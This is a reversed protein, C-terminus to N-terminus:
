DPYCVYRNDIPLGLMLHVADDWLKRRLGPDRIAALAHHYHEVARRRVRERQAILASDSTESAVRFQDAYAQAVFVHVMPDTLGTRLAREGRESVLAPSCAYNWGSRLLEAFASRGAPSLSDTEYTRLLWSRRYRYADNYHDHEFRVGLAELRVRRASDAPTKGLWEAQFRIAIDAVLFAASRQAAALSTTDVLAVLARELVTDLAPTPRPADTRPDFNASDLRHAFILRLPVLGPLGSWTIASDARALEVVAEPSVKPYESQRVLESVGVDLGRGIMYSVAIATPPWSITKGTMEDEYREAPRLAVVVVRKGAIWSSGDTWRGAGPGSMLVGTRANGLATRLLQRMDETAGVAAAPDASPLELWLARLRCVRGPVDATDPLAEGPPARPIVFVASRLWVRTGSRVSDVSSRCFTKYSMGPPETDSVTDAPHATLWAELTLTTDVGTAM